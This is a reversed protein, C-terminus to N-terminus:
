APQLFRVLVKKEGWGPFVASVAPDAGGHVSQVKGEGFRAHRVRSGVRLAVGEGGAADAAEDREVYREGPARAGPAPGGNGGPAGARAYAAPPTADYRGAGPGAYRGAGPGGRGRGSPPGSRFSSNQGWAPQAVRAFPNGPAKHEEVAEPPLDGLFRSPGSCRTNGFLTRMATHLLHLQKRARTIAVYALRREEEEDISEDDGGRAYPFIQEEMGVLFVVEYELGKASHVTMLSVRPLSKEEDPSSALSVRELYGSLTAPEGAARAGEEYEAMSALLEQLNERRADSEATNEAELMALYGTEALVRRGLDSPAAAAAAERFGDVMARFAALKKRPAAGLASEGLSDLADYLSTGRRGAHELLKDVTSQGIGRGPVNVVRAFDVDSRPNVSLRLYALLDKVEARDFFRTGGVVRYPVGELRFVEEIVRSMAHIRYFVAVRTADVGAALAEKVRAVVYLAEDREDRVAVVRVKAGPDNNTFLEKPERERSPRIVGLASRVIHGSSRYNEELKVVKADPYDHRFNRILRVDGGRWRYISQDDDGVVVLNRRAALARVLRYQMRNTDQFEDVLVHWFRERVERGGLSDQDEALRATRGILDEFDVAGSARLYREYGEFVARVVDDVYSESALEAPGRGEQKEKMIRSLVSRPPYRRDDYGLEKLVRAVVSRQDADDYITFDKPLQASEHHRRLLRACTSHFTGVWAEGAVGGGLLRELRERMEGAAKNTFTVALIRRPPVRMAEVLHAVRYTIVRTKGSGAGAFVLLPGEGHTVAAAQSPNLPPGAAPGPADVFGPAHQM